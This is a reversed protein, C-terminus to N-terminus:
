YRCALNSTLPLPIGLVAAMLDAFALAIMFVRIPSRSRKKDLLSRLVFANLAIGSIFVFTLYGGIWKLVYCSALAPRAWQDNTVPSIM